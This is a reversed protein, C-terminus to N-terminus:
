NELKPAFTQRRLVTNTKIHNALAASQSFKHKHQTVKTTLNLTNPTNININVTSNPFIKDNLKITFTSTPLLKIQQIKCLQPKWVSFSSNSRRSEISNTTVLVLFSKFRGLIVKPSKQFSRYPGLLGQLSRSHNRFHSVQFSQTQPTSFIQIPGSRIVSQIECRIVSRPDHIPDHSVFNKHPLGLYLRRSFISCPGRQSNKKKKAQFGMYDSERSHRRTYHLAVMSSPSCYTHIMEDTLKSFCSEIWLQKKVDKLKKRQQRTLCM